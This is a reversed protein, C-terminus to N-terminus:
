SQVKYNAASVSFKFFDPISEFRCKENRILEFIDDQMQKPILRMAKTRVCLEIYELEELIIREHIYYDQYAKNLERIENQCNQRILKLAEKVANM